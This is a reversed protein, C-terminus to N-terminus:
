VRFLNPNPNCNIQPSKGGNRTKQQSFFVLHFKHKGKARHTKQKWFYRESDFGFYWERCDCCSCVACNVLWFEFCPCTVPASRPSFRALFDRNTQNRMPRSLPAFKALWDCRYTFCFWLLRSIFVVRIVIGTATTMQIIKIAQTMNCNRTKSIVSM